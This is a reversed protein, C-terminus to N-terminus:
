SVKAKKAFFAMLRRYEILAPSDECFVCQGTLAKRDGFKIFETVLDQLHRLAGDPSSVNCGSQYENQLLDLGEVEFADFCVREFTDGLLDVCFDNPVTEFHYTVSVRTEAQSKYGVRRTMVLLKLNQM